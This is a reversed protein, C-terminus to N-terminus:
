VPSALPRASRDHEFWTIVLSRLRHSEATFILSLEIRGLDYIESVTGEPPVDPNVELSFPSPLRLDLQSKLLGIELDIDLILMTSGKNLDIKIEARSYPANPESSELFTLHRDDDRCDFRCGIIMGLAVASPATIRLLARLHKELIAATM